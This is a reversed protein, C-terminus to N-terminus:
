MIFGTALSAANMVIAVLALFRCHKFGYCAVLAGWEVIVIAIECGFIFATDHGCVGLLLSFVPHTVLNVGVVALWWRPMDVWASATYELAINIWEWAIFKILADM